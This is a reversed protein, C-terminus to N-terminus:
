VLGIMRTYWKGDPARVWREKFVHPRHKGDEWSVVGYAFDKCGFNNDPMDLHLSLELSLITIPGHNQFFASLSDSYCPYEVKRESRLKPDVTAFCAKWDNDNFHQYFGRIRLRLRRTQRQRETDSQTSM